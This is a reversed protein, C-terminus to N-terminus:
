RGPDSPVVEDIEVGGLHSPLEKFATTDGSLLEDSVDLLRNM